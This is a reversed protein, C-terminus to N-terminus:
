ESEKKEEFIGFKDALKKVFPKIDGPVEDALRNFDVNTKRITTVDKPDQPPAPISCRGIYPLMQWNKESEKFLDLVEYAVILLKGRNYSEKDMMKRVQDKLWENSIQYKVMDIRSFATGLLNSRYNSFNEHYERLEEFPADTEWKATLHELIYLAAVHDVLEIFWSNIRPDCYIRTFEQSFQFAVQNFFVNSINLGIKYYNKGLPWYLTPGGIRDNILHIPKYGLPPGQPILREFEAVIDRIVLSAREDADQDEMLEYHITWEM